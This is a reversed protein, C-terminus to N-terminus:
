RAIVTLLPSSFSSMYKVAPRYARTLRAELEHDLENFHRLYLKGYQSWCRIGLTGPEKKILQQVFETILLSTKFYFNLNVLGKCRCLQLFLVDAPM